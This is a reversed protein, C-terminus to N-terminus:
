QGAVHIQFGATWAGNPLTVYIAGPYTAAQFNIQSIGAVMYPAPGQYTVDFPQWVCSLMCNQGVTDSAFVSVALVNDPLPYGVLAGDAQAPSIPGLGTAWVSVISGVPAPNSASNASGDQNIAAAYTGDTTFIAPYEQVVPWTLCSAAAGNYSVCVQTDQGTALSWPVVANIQQDQVWLLPAPKGGFTVEVGEAQTPYPSNLAAQPQFGQEPGLGSGFLTVLEGPVIPWPQFSAGHALCALPVVQAPSNASLSLLFAPITDDAHTFPGAVAPAFGPGAIASVLVTSNAGLALVPTQPNVANQAGPLYSNQLLSGDPALVTLFTFTSPANGCTALSNRVQIARNSQGAIYMNGAADLLLTGGNMGPFSTLYTVAGTPDVREFAGGYELVVANGNADVAISPPGLNQPLWALIGASGDPAVRALYGPGDETLGAVFAGGSGDVAIAMPMEGLTAVYDVGTGAANWRAVVGSSGVSAGVYARGESDVAIVPFAFGSAPQGLPTKWALGSGRPALKAVYVSPDVGNNAPVVYVGGGPDVAMAGNLVTFELQDQWLITTGDPSLKTVCSFSNPGCYMSLIYIAGSSDTAIRSAYTNLWESYGIGMPFASPQAM